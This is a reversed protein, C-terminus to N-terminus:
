TVERKMYCDAHAERGKYIRTGMVGVIYQQGAEIWQGCICCSRHEVRATIVKIQTGERAIGM